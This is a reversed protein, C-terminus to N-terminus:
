WTLYRKSSFMNVHNLDEKIPPFITTM